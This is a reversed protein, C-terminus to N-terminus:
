RMLGASPRLLAMGQHHGERVLITSVPDFGGKFGM